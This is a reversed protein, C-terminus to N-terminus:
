GAKLTVSLTEVERELDEAMHGLAKSASLTQEAATGTSATGALVAQMSQAMAKSAESVDHTSRGIENMAAMQEEVAAAIANAIGSVENISGSLAEIAGVTGQTATQVDQIQVVIEDTAKATQSALQKVETAVVAFGRGAEGARAAEITANLALLNTQAAIDQILKVVDGIKSAASSLDLAVQGAEHAKSQAASVVQTSLAAQSAIESISRNMEHTAHAVAEISDASTFAQKQANESNERTNYATATLGQAAQELGESSQNITAALAQMRAQFATMVNIEQAMRNAKEAELAFRAEDASKANRLAERLTGISQSLKGFEENREIRPAGSALDGSVLRQMNGLLVQVCRILDATILWGITFALVTALGILGLNTTLQSKIVDISVSDVTGNHLVRLLSQTQQVYFYTALGLAPLFAFAVLGIRTKLGSNKVWIM